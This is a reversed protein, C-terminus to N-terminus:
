GSDGSITRDLDVIHQQTYMISYIRDPDFRTYMYTHIIRTHINAQEYTRETVSLLNIAGRSRYKSNYEGVIVRFKENYRILRWLCRIICLSIM